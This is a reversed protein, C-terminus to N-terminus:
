SKEWEDTYGNNYNFLKEDSLKWFRYQGNEMKLYVSSIRTMSESHSGWVWEVKYGFNTEIVTDTIYIVNSLKEKLSPGVDTVQFDKNKYVTGNEIQEYYGWLTDIMNAEADGAIYLSRCDAAPKGATFDKYSDNWLSKVAVFTANETEIDGVVLADVYNEEKDANYAPEIEVTYVGFTEAKLEIIADGRGIAPIIWKYLLNDKGIRGDQYKEDVNIGNISLEVNGGTSVITWDHVYFESADFYWKNDKDIRMPIRFTKESDSDIAISVNVDATSETESLVESSIGKYSEVALIDKYSSRPMYWEMDKGTFFTLDAEGTFNVLADWNEDLILRVVEEAATYSLKQKNTDGGSNNQPSSEENQPNSEENTTICGVLSLALILSVICVLVRSSVSRM